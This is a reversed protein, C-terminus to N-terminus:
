MRIFNEILVVNLKNGFNCDIIVFYMYEWILNYDM